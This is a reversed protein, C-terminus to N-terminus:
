EQWSYICQLIREKAQDKKEEKLLTLVDLNQIAEFVQRRVGEDEFSQKILIRAEGLLDTYDSYEAGISKELSERLKRALLPSKGETSVSVSLSGRRLTSPVFFRCRDPEDVVNVLIGQNECVEFVYQNTQENNTAAFVLFCGNVDSGRFAREQLEITKNEALEILQRDPALSVVKIVAGCELLNSVKRVAVSGGGVVLCKQNNLDLLIPFMLTM